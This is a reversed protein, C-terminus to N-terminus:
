GPAVADITGGGNAMGTFSNIIGWVTGFLGIFPSISGISALTSLLNNLEINSNNVGKKLGRELVGLGFDKFHNHLGAGKNEKSFIERIKVLEDFGELFMSRFPSFPMEQTQDYIEKLSASSKYLELFTNNNKKMSKLAKRKKLIIAWSFVSILILIFLVFKVVPGSELLIKLIDMSQMTEM